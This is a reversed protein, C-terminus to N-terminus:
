LNEYLVGKRSNPMRGSTVCISYVTARVKDVM